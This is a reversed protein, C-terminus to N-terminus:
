ALGYDNQQVWFCQIVDERFLLKNLEILFKKLPVIRLILFTVLKLSVFKILYAFKLKGIAYLLIRRTNTIVKIKLNLFISILFIIKLLLHPHILPAFDGIFNDRSSVFFLLHFQRNASISILLFDTIGLLKM